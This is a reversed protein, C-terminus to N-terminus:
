PYLAGFLFPLRLSVWIHVSVRSLFSASLGLVKPFGLLSHSRPHLVGFPLPSGWFLAHVKPIDWYPVLVEPLGCPRLPFRPLAWIHAPIRHLSSGSLTEFPLLLRLSGWFPVSGCPHLSSTGLTVFSGPPARDRGARPPAQRPVRRRQWAVTQSGM